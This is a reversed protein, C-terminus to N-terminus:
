APVPHRRCLVVVKEAVAKEVAADGLKDLVDCM